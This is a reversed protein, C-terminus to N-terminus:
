GYARSAADISVEYLTYLSIGMETKNDCVTMLIVKDHDCTCMTSLWDDTALSESKNSM